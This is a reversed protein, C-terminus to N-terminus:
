SDEGIRKAPNGVYTGPALLDKVITSGAGIVCGSCITVGQVLASGAGILCHSGITVGGSITAGTAVHVNEALRCDHEVTSNTNIICLRDIVTGSNVVAGDFVVTGQDLEVEENVIANPSVIAPLEYGLGQLRTALRSRFDSANVKGVGIAVQASLRKYTQCELVEDTGLYPVRLISGHDEPDTYGAVTYRLKTLVSILVKGHGGGGVVLVTKEMDGRSVQIVHSSPGQLSGASGAGYFVGDVYALIRCTPLKWRRRCCRGRRGLRKQGQVMWRSNDAKAGHRMLAGRESLALLLQRRNSTLSTSMLASNM